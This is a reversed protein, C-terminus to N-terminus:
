YSIVYYVIIYLMIICNNHFTELAPSRYPSRTRGTVPPAAREGVASEARRYQTECRPYYIYIYIYIYMCVCVSTYM